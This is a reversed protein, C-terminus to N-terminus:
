KGYVPKKIILLDGEISISSGVKDTLEKLLDSGLDRIPFAVNSFEWTDALRGIRCHSKVFFYKDKVKKPTSSKSPTFKDNIVKFVYPFMPFTFVTMVMGKIGPAIILKEDTDGKSYKLFTRYLLTKGHKHLGIASYLDAKTKTLLM